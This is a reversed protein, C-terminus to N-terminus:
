QVSMVVSVQFMAYVNGQLLKMQGFEEKPIKVTDWSSANHM